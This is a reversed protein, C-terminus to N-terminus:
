AYHTKLARLYPVCARRAKVAGCADDLSLAHHRHLYAVAVTPARNLGANCHLYVREGAGIRRHLDALVADIVALLAAADGDAVPYRVFAIAVEDYARRLAGLRLGKRDLDVDDQLSVVAHVGCRDRLWQADEPTPYEGVALAPLIFAHDPHGAPRVAPGALQLHLPPLGSPDRM